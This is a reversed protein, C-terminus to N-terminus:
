LKWFFVKLLFYSTISVFDCSEALRICSVTKGGLESENQETRFFLPLGWLRFLLHFATLM